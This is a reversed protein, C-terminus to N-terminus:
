QKVVVLSTADPTTFHRLVLVDCVPGLLFGGIGRLVVPCGAGLEAVFMAMASQPPAQLQVSIFRGLLFRDWLEVENSAALMRASETFVSNTVVMARQAGIDGEPIGVRRALTVAAM